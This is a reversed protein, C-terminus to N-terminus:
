AQNQGMPGMSNFFQFYNICRLATLPPGFWGHDCTVQVFFKTFVPQTSKSNHSHVSLCVSLCVSMSMVISQVGGPLLNVM